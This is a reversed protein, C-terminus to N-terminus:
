ISCFKLHTKDGASLFWIITLSTLLIIPCISYITLLKCSLISHCAYRWVLKPLSIQSYITQGTHLIFVTCYEHLYLFSLINAINNTWTILFKQMMPPLRRHRQVELYLDRDIRGDMWRYIQICMCIYMCEISCSPLNMKVPHYALDSHLHWVRCQPSIMHINEPLICSLFKQM